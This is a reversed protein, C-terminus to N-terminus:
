YPFDPHEHVPAGGKLQDCCACLLAAVDVLASGTLTSVSYSGRPATMYDNSHDTAGHKKVEFTPPTAKLLEMSLPTHLHHTLVLWRHSIM